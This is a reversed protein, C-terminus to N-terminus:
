EAAEDQYQPEGYDRDRPKEGLALQYSDGLCVVKGARVLRTVEASAINRRAGPMMREVYDVIDSKALVANLDGEFAQIVFEAYRSTGKLVKAKAKRPESKHHDIPAHSEQCEILTREAAALDDLKTEYAERQRKILGLADSLSLESM